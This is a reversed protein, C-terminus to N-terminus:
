WFTVQQPLANTQTLKDRIIEAAKSWKDLRARVGCMQSNDNCAVVVKALQTHLLCHHFDFNSTLVWKNLSMQFCHQVIHSDENCAVVAKATTHLWTNSSFSVLAAQHFDFSSFEVFSLLVCWFFHQTCVCSEKLSDQQRESTFSNSGKVHFLHGTLWTLFQSVLRSSFEWCQPWGTVAHVLAGTLSWQSYRLLWYQNHCEHNVHNHM